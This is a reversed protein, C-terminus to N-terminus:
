STKEYDFMIKFVDNPCMKNVTIDIYLVIEKAVM